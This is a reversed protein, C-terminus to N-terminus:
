VRLFCGLVIFSSRSSGLYIYVDIFILSVQSRALIPKRNYDRHLFSSTKKKIQATAVVSSALPLPTPPTAITATTTPISTPTCSFDLNSTLKNINVKKVTTVPTASAMLTNTKTNPVNCSGNIDKLTEQQKM